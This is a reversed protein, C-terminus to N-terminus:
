EVAETVVISSNATEFDGIYLLENGGSYFEVSVESLDGELLSLYVFAEDIPIQDETYLPKGM